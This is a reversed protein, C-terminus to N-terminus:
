QLFVNEAVAFGYRVKIPIFWFTDRMFVSIDVGLQETCAGSQVCQVVVCRRSRFLFQRDLPGEKGDLRPYGTPYAPIMRVFILRYDAIPHLGIRVMQIMM